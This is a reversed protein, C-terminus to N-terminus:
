QLRVNYFINLEEKWWTKTSPNFFDPFVTKTDPWVYGIVYDRCTPDQDSPIYVDSYWKVYADADKGRQGPPYNDWDIVVAPDQLYLRNQITSYFQLFDQLMNSKLVYYHLSLPCHSVLIITLKLNDNHLEQALAPLDAWLVPDYTFDRYREM